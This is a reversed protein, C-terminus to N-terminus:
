VCGIWLKESSLAAQLVTVTVPLNNNRQTDVPVSPGAHVGVDESKSLLGNEEHPCCWFYELHLM